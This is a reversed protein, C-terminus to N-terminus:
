RPKQGRRPPEQPEEHEEIWLRIAEGRIHYLHGRRFCPVGQVPKDDDDRPFIFTELVWDRKRNLVAALRQDTYVVGDHIEGLHTIATTM